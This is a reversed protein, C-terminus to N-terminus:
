ERSVENVFSLIAQVFSLKKNEDVRKFGYTLILNDAILLLKSPEQLLMEIVAALLSCM